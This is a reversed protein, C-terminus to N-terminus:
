QRQLNYHLMVVFHVVDDTHFLDCCIVCAAANLKYYLVWVFNCFDGLIEM